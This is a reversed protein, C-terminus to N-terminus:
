LARHPSSLATRGPAAESTPCVAEKQFVVLSWLKPIAVKEISIPQLQAQELFGPLDLDSRFGIHVTLPSIVREAMAVVRNESRFHNLLVVYGGVRCVRYMERIVAVPDPVVSIVYPAYVVDFSRDEFTMNMADMKTLRVNGVRSTDLRRRAKALMSASFDVGTVRCDKRYLLANLGTGVGVELVEDGGGIPVKQMAALRGAHLTPGFFIDYWSSLGSYVDEVFENEVAIVSLPPQGTESPALM